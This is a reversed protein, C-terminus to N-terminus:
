SSPVSISDPISLQKESEEDIEPLEKFHLM